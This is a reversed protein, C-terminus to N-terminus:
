DGWYLTVSARISRPELPHFHVDEVGGAPEGSLRSPYFYAIDNKGTDLLNFADVRFETAGRRYAAGANLLWSSQSRVQGTEELPADGLYRLRMNINLGNNWNANAGLTFTDEVAGPIDRGGGQDAKFKADTRTYAANLTLWDTAQWFGSLEVGTRQTADNAETTGADGVYVLESDLELWFAVVNVNVRQGREWRIGLEAGESRAIADVTDTPDGSAPDTSITAGRVDNSHFGRGWSAYSELSDSLRYALNLSPSLQSDNGDGSNAARLADVDWDYADGRLGVVGRLRETVAMEISAWASISAEAVQDQRTASLRERSRTQYLGVEDIDDYRLETGWRLTSAASGINLPQNGSLWLGWQQRSDRQEFEDGQDPNDLQYTFNSYLSLDYDLWYGGAQWREGSLGATLAYRSTDGGLDPDIFGFADILGSDVARRPIQDTADWTNEYLQLGLNATLEGVGFRYNFYAKNQELNEDLEWPGEYHTVDIAGLLTGEGLTTSGAILGRQYGFEGATLRLLTEPLERYMSFDVSGASAFDGSAAHYPGKRYRTTEVLEPIMFNLDLYGQGHGHSRMNIPVGDVRAAFDTGHDLNFGRLFYQNAKGTGSHQTAVMGPVAEVLEGVRLLPPLQIDDYGVLGESATTAVGVQQISRGFVVVEEYNSESNSESNTDSSHESSQQNPEAFGNSAALALLISCHKSLASRHKLVMDKGRTM